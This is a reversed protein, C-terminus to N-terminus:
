RSSSSARSPLPSPRHSTSPGSGPVSMPRVSSAQSVNTRRSSAPDTPTSSTQATFTANNTQGPSTRIAAGSGAAKRSSISPVSHLVARGGMASRGARDARLPAARVPAPVDSGGSAAAKAQFGSGNRATQQAASLVHAPSVGTAAPGIGTPAPGHPGPRAGGPLDLGILASLVVALYLLCSGAVGAGILRMWRARVGNEQVFVPRRVVQRHSSDTEIM